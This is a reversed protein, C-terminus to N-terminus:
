WHIQAAPTNNLPVSPPPTSRTFYYGLGAGVAAGGVVVVMTTWFWWRKAVSPAPPKGVLATFPVQDTGLHELYAGSRDLVDAYYEIKMGSQLQQTFLRPLTVHGVAGAPIKSYARGGAVRYYVVFGAILYTPDSAINFVLEVPSGPHLGGPPTHTVAEVSKGEMRKQAEAFARQLAESARPPLTVTKDLSLARELWNAAGAPDRTALAIRARLVFARVLGPRENGPAKEFKEVQTIAETLRGQAAADEAVQLAEEGRARAAREKSLEGECRKLETESRARLQLLARDTTGGTEILFAKFREIAHDLEELKRNRRYMWEHTWGINFLLGPKGSLRYSTEFHKLAEDYHGLDFDRSGEEYEKKALDLIQQAPQGLARRPAGFSFALTAVAIILEIRKV